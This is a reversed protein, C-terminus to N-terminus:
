TADARSAGSGSAGPSDVVDRGGARDPAVAQGVREPRGRPWGVRRGDSPPADVFVPIAAAIRTGRGTASELTFRGGAAEVRDRLGQLGSGRASTAGGVGDDVIEIRLTRAGATASVDISSAGSHKQANTVAEAFVYYATAEASEDGREAPMKSVTIPITSRLAVSRIANALGLDTLVAPHIGHALERLEAIALELKADADELLSAAEEPRERARRAAHRLDVSLWTLRQQAGDHLNRELRRRETDGARVLRARSARLGRALEARESVVAALVLTSLAAVTVFLQTSLVSRSISRFAFPGLYHTTNWLAVSVAIAVALTAGRQGFRLAVWILAPFVLFTVPRETRSAYDGLVAVAALVVGAELLRGRPRWRRRPFPSWALVLPAVILAGCFDGLWWTRWVTPVADASIVGGLKLSLSGITASVATGAAFAVLMRALGRVSQLPSGGPVMRRILVTAVLVELVNGCTQGIASGLPIATYNNALLDGLLVGPWYSIGRLYLFAIGVGVPPWVIAAVPGAFNLDFGIRASGYYLAALVAVGFLYGVYGVSSRAALDVASARVTVTDQRM